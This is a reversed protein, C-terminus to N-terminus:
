YDRECEMDVLSMYEGHQQSEEWAALDLRNNDVLWNVQETIFEEKLSESSEISSCFLESALTARRMADEENKIEISILEFQQEEKEVAAAALMSDFSLEGISEGDLLAHIIQKVIVDQPSAEYRFPKM